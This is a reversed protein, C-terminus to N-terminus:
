RSRRSQHLFWVGVLLLTLSALPRWSRQKRAPPLTGSSWVREQNAALVDLARPANEPGDLYWVGGGPLVKRFGWPEFPDYIGSTVYVKPKDSLNTQVWIWDDQRWARAAERGGKPTRKEAGWGSILYAEEWGGGAPTKLGAGLLEEEGGPGTDLYFAITALSFGLPAEAPNPYRALRIGLLWLGDQQKIEFQTIDAFGVDQYISARPYGLGAGHDDGVPDSLLLLALFIWNM